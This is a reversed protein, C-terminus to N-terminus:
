ADLAPPMASRILLRPVQRAWLRRYSLVSRHRDRASIWALNVVGAFFCDDITKEIIERRSERTASIEIADDISVAWTRYEDGLEDHRHGLALAVAVFFRTRDLDTRM